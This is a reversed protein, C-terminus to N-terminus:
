NLYLAKRPRTCAVYLCRFAEPRNKNILIDRWDVFTHTYTSGQSRHATIAYAHRLKHFAEKFEWFSGWRRRDARAALALEEVREVHLRLSDEHLVRLSIPRNDDVTVSIRWVKFEGYVPHWDEEVRTIVGEDDTTAIIENELDKAPEVLIVRDGVLWPKCAGESGYLIERIRKNYRDVTANRWAIIKAEGCANFVGVSAMTAIRQEFMGEDFKWIGEEGDNASNLKLRPAPHDISNRIKTALELISNDHRMVETLHASPMTLGWIASCSEGVPPLQADDGLFIFKIKQARAAAAIFQFLTTNVMSAEDVIVAKYLSLDVPDEPVALEKIEGNAEMRLGLLSYITRCEPTYSDSKLTDRLVKTAKNTPATFIFRGKASTILQRICFTKGTGASGKLLFFTATPLSLFRTMAEVAEVQGVNLQNFNSM